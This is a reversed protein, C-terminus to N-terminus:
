AYLSRGVTVPGPTRWRRHRLRRAGAKAINDTGLNGNAGAATTSLFANRNLRQADLRDAIWRAAIDTGGGAPYPVIIGSRGAQITRRASCRGAISAAVSASTAQAAM